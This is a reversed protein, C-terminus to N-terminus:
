KPRAVGGKRKIGYGYRYLDPIDIRDDDRKKAVGLRILEDLVAEGDAGFQDESDSRNSLRSVVEAHEAMLSLGRLRALRQVVPYEEALEQVRSLSTAELGAQLEESKFIQQHIGKPKRKIAQEASNVFLNLMSRPLVAQHADQLHSPIWRHVYGKNVGEGMTAGALASAFSRQTFIEPNEDEEPASPSPIALELQDKPKTVKKLNGDGDPMSTPPLWGLQAHDTLPVKAVEQLWRRLQVSPNSMHRIVVRYLNETTWSLSVSRAKLKTADTSSKLGTEFLDERIFMKARIAKYRTSLSLWLALLAAVLRDREVRDTAGVKDLHDYSVYAYRSEAALQRDVQELWAEIRGIESAVARAWAAPETRQDKWVQYSPAEFPIGTATALVGALHGLWMMRLAIADHSRAFLVLTNASPHETSSESFGEIWQAKVPPATPFVDIWPISQKELERLVHFLATKGAGREGRILMIQPDLSRGHEPLPLFQRLPNVIDADTGLAAIQALLERRQDDSLAQM